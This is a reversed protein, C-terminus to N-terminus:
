VMEEYVSQELGWSLLPQQDGHLPDVHSLILRGRTIVQSPGGPESLLGPICNHLISAEEHCLKALLGDGHKIYRRLYSHPWSSLHLTKGCSELLKRSASGDHAIIMHCPPDGVM